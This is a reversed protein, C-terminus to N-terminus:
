GRRRFVGHVCRGRVSRFRWFGRMAPPSRRHPPKWSVFRASVRSSHVAFVAERFAQFPTKEIECISGIPCGRFSGTPRQADGSQAEAYTAAMLAARPPTPFVSSRRPGVFARAALDAARVGDSPLGIPIDIGVAAAGALARLLQAFTAAHLSDALEEDETVIAVWGGRCADIGAVVTMRPDDCSRSCLSPGSPDSSSLSLMTAKSRASGRVASATSATAAQGPNQGALKVCWLRV